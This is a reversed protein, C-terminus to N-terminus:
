AFRAHLEKAEIGTQRRNQNRHREHKSGGLVLAGGSSDGNLRQEDGFRREHEIPRGDAAREGSDTRGNEAGSARGPQDRQDRLRHGRRRSTRERRLSQGDGAKQAGRGQEAAGARRHNEPVPVQDDRRQLHRVQLVDHLDM